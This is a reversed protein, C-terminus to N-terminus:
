ADVGVIERAYRAISALLAVATADDADSLDINGWLVDTWPFDGLLGVTLDTRDVVTTLNTATTWTTGLDLSISAKKDTANWCGIVATLGTRVPLSAIAETSGAAGVRMQFQTTTALFNHRNGTTGSSLLHNTAGPTEEFNLIIAKFFDAGVPFTGNYTLQSDNGGTDHTVSPRSNFLSDSELWAPKHVPSDTANLLASSGQKRSSISNVTSSTVSTKSVKPTYWDTLNAHNGISKDYNLSDITIADPNNISGRIMIQSIPM